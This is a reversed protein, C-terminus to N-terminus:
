RGPPQRNGTLNKIQDLVTPESTVEVLEKKLEGDTKNKKM